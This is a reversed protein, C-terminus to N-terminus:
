KNLSELEHIIKTTTDSLPKIQNEGIRYIEEAAIDLYLDIDYM